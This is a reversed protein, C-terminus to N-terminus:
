RRYRRGDACCSSDSPPAQLILRMISRSNGPAAFSTRRTNISGRTLIGNILRALELIGSVNGTDDQRLKVTRRLAADDDCNALIQFNRDFEDTHALLEVIQLRKICILKRLCQEFLFLPSFSKPFM